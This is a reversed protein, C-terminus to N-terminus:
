ERVTFHLSCRIHVLVVIIYDESEDTLGPFVAVGNEVLPKLTLKM